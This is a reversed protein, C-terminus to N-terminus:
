LLKEMAMVDVFEGDLMGQNKFVGVERYGRKNYLGQGIQNFPLTFLVIKNFDNEKALKEISQLLLGGIRKGRHDRSIYVSLDAVGRYADRRNYPNLSAWGVIEGEQEAVIVKYRGIHKAFWEEIYTQDKVETELTAIRDEIGQNYIEKISVIDTEMAERIIM